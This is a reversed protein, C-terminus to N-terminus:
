AKKVFFSKTFDLISGSSEEKKDDKEESKKEKQEPERVDKMNISGSTNTNTTDNGDNGHVENKDGVVVTINPAAMPPAMPQLHQPTLLPRNFMQQQQQQTQYLSPDITFPYTIENPEVVLVNDKQIHPNNTEITIFEPGIKKIKYVIPRQTVPDVTINKLIVDDGVAFEKNEDDYKKKAGGMLSDPAWEPTLPAFEPEDDDDDRPPAWEPSSPAFRPEDDDDRPPAWEPSSPTYYPSDIPYDNHPLQTAEEEADPIDFAQDVSKNKFEDTHDKKKLAERIDHQIKSITEKTELHELHSLKNINKSFSLEELHNISDETVVRLTMNLVQLEQILLKFTYPICIISFDRGFKSINVVKMDNGALSGVFQLPGDAMPSLFLNKSPNYVSIMGSKNCIAMYYEDGREMM